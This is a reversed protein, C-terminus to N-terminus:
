EKDMNNVLSQINETLKKLDEKTKEEDINMGDIGEKARLVEKKLRQTEEALQNLEQEQGSEKAQERLNDLLAGLKEISDDYTGEKIKGSEHQFIGVIGQVTQKANHIVEKGMEQEQETGFIQTYVVWGVIFFFILSILKGVM